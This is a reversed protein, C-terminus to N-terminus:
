SPAPANPYAWSPRRRSTQRASRRRSPTAHGCPTLSLELERVGDSQGTAHFGFCRLLAIAAANEAFASATLRIINNARAREIVRAILARGIGRGQWDDTVECALEAVDDHGPRAAYRAVGVIAGDAPDLAVLAERQVHDVNVLRALDRQPLTPKLGLFRQYRSRDSLREFAAALAGRDAPELPRVPLTTGDALSIARNPNKRTALTLLSVVTRATGTARGAAQDTASM